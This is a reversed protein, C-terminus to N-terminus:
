VWDFGLTWMVFRGAARLTPCREVQAAICCIFLYLVELDRFQVLLGENGMVDSPAVVVRSPDISLVDYTYQAHELLARGASAPYFRIEFVFPPPQIARGSEEDEYSWVHRVFAPYEPLDGLPLAKRASASM